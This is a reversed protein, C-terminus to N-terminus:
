RYAVRCVRVEIHTIVQTASLQADVQTPLYRTVAIDPGGQQGGMGWSFVNVPQGTATTPSGANRSQHIASIVGSVFKENEYGVKQSDEDQSRFILRMSLKYEMWRESLTPGALGIVDDTADGFWLYIFGGFGIGPREYFDGESTVKEPYLFVRSLYPIGNPNPLNPPSSLVNLYEFVQGSVLFFDDEPTITDSTSTFTVGPGV